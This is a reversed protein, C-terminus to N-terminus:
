CLAPDRLALWDVWCIPGTEDEYPMIDGIPAEPLRPFLINACLTHPM